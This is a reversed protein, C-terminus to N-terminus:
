EDLVRNCIEVFFNPGANRKVIKIKPPKSFSGSTGTGLGQVKELDSVVVM